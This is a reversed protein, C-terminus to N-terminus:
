CGKVQPPGDPDSTVSWGQISPLGLADHRISWLMGGTASLLSEGTPLVVHGVFGDRWRFAIWHESGAEDMLMTRRLWITGDDSALIADVSGISPEPVQSMFGRTLMPTSLRERLSEPATYQVKRAYSRVDGITARVRELPLDAATVTDGDATMRVLGLHSKGSSDRRWTGIYVWRSKPDYAMISRADFPNRVSVIQPDGTQGTITISVTSRGGAVWALTDRIDGSREFALLPISAERADANASIYPLSLVWSGLAARPMALTAGSGVRFSVSSVYDMDQDFFSLRGLDRDTVWLTDSLWGMSDPQRFEGPGEGQQGITRVWEGQRDFLIVGPVLPDLVYIRNSDALIARPDALTADDVGSQIEVGLTLELRPSSVSPRLPEPGQAAAGKFSLVAVIVGFGIVVRFM